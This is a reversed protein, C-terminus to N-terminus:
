KIILDNKKNRSSGVQVSAKGTPGRKSRSEEGKRKSEGSFTIRSSLNM